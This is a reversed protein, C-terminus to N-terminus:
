AWAKATWRFWFRIQRRLARLLGFPLLRGPSKPHLQRGRRFEVDQWMTGQSEICAVQQGSPSPSYTGYWSSNNNAVIASDSYSGDAYVDHDPLELRWLQGWVCLGGDDLGPSEFDSNGVPVSSTNPDIDPDSVTIANGHASSFILPSNIGFPESRCARQQRAGRERAPGPGRLQSQQAPIVERAVCATARGNSSPWRAAAARSTTWASRTRRGPRWTSRTKRQFVRRRRPQGLRRVGLNGDVWLRVGGDATAYFTYDGSVDPTVTGQWTATWNTGEIGPAPSGQNGWDFDVTQDIRTVASGSGDM